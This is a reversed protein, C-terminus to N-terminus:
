QSPGWSFVGQHGRMAALRCERILATRTPAMVRPHDKCRVWLAPLWGDPEPPREILDIIRSEGLPRWQQREAGEPVFAGQASWQQFHLDLEDDPMEASSRLMEERFWPPWEIEDRPREKIRSVFLPGAPTPFTMALPRSCGKQPCRVIVLADSYRGRDEAALRDEAEKAAEWRAKRALLQLRREAVSM